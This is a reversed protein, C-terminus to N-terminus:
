EDMTVAVAKASWETPSIGGRFFRFGYRSLVDEGDGDDGAEAATGQLGEDMNGVVAMDFQCRSLGRRQSCEGGSEAAPDSVSSVYGNAASGPGGEVVTDDVADIVDVGHYLNTLSSATCTSATGTCAIGDVHSVQDDAEKDAQSKYHRAGSDEVTALAQPGQSNQQVERGIRELGPLECWHGPSHFARGTQYKYLMHLYYSTDDDHNTPRYVGYLHLRQLRSAAAKDGNEDGAAVGGGGANSPTLSLTLPTATAEEGEEQTNPSIYKAYYKLRRITSQKFTRIQADFHRSVNKGRLLAPCPRRLWLKSLTYRVFELGYWLARPTGDRGRSGCDYVLCCHGLALSLLLNADLEAVLAELNQQECATSQIRVFSYPLKLEHLMPLAEIGNTLNVFHRCDRLYLPKEGTPALVLKKNTSSGTNANFVPSSSSRVCAGQGPDTKWRTSRRNDRNSPFGSQVPVFTAPSVFSAAKCPAANSVFGFASM